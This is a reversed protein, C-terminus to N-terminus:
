NFDVLYGGSTDFLINKSEEDIVFSSSYLCPIKNFLRYDKQKTYEKSVYYVTGASEVKTTYKWDDPEFYQYYQNECIRDINIFMSYGKPLSHEDEVSNAIECYEMEILEIFDESRGLSVFDYRHNMIDQLVSDEARVHIVLEVDYLVEQKQPGKTLTRFHSYPELYERYREEEFERNIKNFEDEKEAILKNLTEYETSNNQLTKLRSKSEKKEKKWSLELPKIKEKKIKDFEINKEKLHQYLKLLKENNINILKENMFSAGNAFAEAVTIYGANLSNANNLWILIGRDDLTSNLLAHNVYVKKHMAGYKGQVSIDMSHYETYGCANHLAGIITSYQPLPYTMRNNVTEERTYSAQRQLLKIRLAKM